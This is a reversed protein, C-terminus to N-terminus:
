RTGHQSGVLPKASPIPADIPLARRAPDYGLHGHTAVLLVVAAITSMITLGIMLTGATMSPYMTPFFTSITNNVGVHLLLALPLSEGTKNFVQIMVVNFTITFLAFVVPESWHANPWGGWDSLYLPMHWLAWVPGLIAAAGLGGFRHQLRPLAFDRWGPEEALGTTVMQLLLAPVYVALVLVSPAHIRGGNFVLGTALLVAPVGLLAVAYWHWRVRWHWLRRVWRRLGDRGDAILTVLFASFVPGLYAGPLVGLIQSSGLVDPYRYAWLGLGNQSLVYPTWAL